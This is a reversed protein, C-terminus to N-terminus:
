RLSLSSGGIGFHHCCPGSKSSHKVDVVLFKVLLTIRVIVLLVLLFLVVLRPINFDFIEFEVKHCLWQKVDDHSTDGTLRNLWAKFFSNWITSDFNKDKDQRSGQRKLYYIKVGCFTQDSYMELSFSLSPLSVTEFQEIRFYYISNPIIQHHHTQHIYDDLTSTYHNFIFSLESGFHQHQKIICIPCCTVERNM